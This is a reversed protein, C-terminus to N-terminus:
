IYPFCWGVASAMARAVVVGAEEQGLFGSKCSALLTFNTLAFAPVFVEDISASSSHSSGNNSRFRVYQVDVLFCLATQTRWSLELTGACSAALPILMSKLAQKNVATGAGKFVQNM